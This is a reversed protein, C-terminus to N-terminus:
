GGESVAVDASAAQSMTQGDGECMYKVDNWGVSWGESGTAHMNPIVDNSDM